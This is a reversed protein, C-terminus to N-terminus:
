LVVAVHEDMFQSIDEVFLSAIISVGGFAISCYYVWPYASAYALQGALVISEWLKVNGDVGPLHLIEELLSASTLEIAEKIVVPDKIGGMVMATSVNKILVPTLKQVLVNYYVAYGIAGGIVRVSLTLATITAILDDPCIITTIVTTPIVIGGVGLGSVLLIGYVANVNERNAAAMAGCGATMVCSAIFLIVRIGRGRLKTMVGLTIVCGAMVGFGFSLGRLGIGVPDHGYVNFAQTPWMMLVSFFNAGSIFAIIMTLVLSRPAKGLRKPVM